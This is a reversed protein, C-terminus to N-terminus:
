IDVALSLYTSPTSKLLAPHPGTLAERFNLVKNDVGVPQRESLHTGIGEAIQDLTIENNRVRATSFLHVKKDYILLQPGPLPSFYPCPGYSFSLRGKTGETGRRASRGKGLKKTGLCCHPFMQESICGPCPCGYLSDRTGM